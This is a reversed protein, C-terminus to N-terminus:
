GEGRIKINRVKALKEIEERIMSDKPHNYTQTQSLKAHGLLQRAVELNGTYSGDASPNASDTGLSHRFGYLSFGYLHMKKIIRAMTNGLIATTLQQNSASHFVYDRLEGIVPKQKSNERHEKFFEFVENTMLVKLHRKKGRHGKYSIVWFERKEFDVMSWTLRCVAIPRIGTVALLYYPGKGWKPALDIARQIDSSSWPKHSEVSETLKELEACPNSDIWGWKKAKKFFDKINIFRRNISTAGLSVIMNRPMVKPVYAIGNKICRSKRHSEVKKWLRVREEGNSLHTQYKDLHILEVENLYYLALDDILFDYLDSLYTKAHSIDKRKPLEVKSYEQIAEHIPKGEDNDIQSLRYKISLEFDRAEDRSEFIQRYRKGRARFDVKWGEPVRKVSM